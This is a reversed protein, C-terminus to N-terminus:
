RYWTGCVKVVNNSNVSTAVRAVRNHAIRSRTIYITFARICYRSWNLLLLDRTHKGRPTGGGPSNTPTYRTGVSMLGVNLHM